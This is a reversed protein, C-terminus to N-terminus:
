LKLTEIITLFGKGNAILEDNQTYQLNSIDFHVWKSEKPVFEHLFMAANYSTSCKTSANKLDAVSSKIYTKNLYQPLSNIPEKLKQSINEIKNKLSKDQTFFVGYDDCAIHTSTFTTIDVILDPKYKNAYSLGDAVVLRGEADTNSIEVTKQSHSTVIDGPKLTEQSLINETLPLIAVISENTNEVMYKFIHGAYCAGTKDMKMYHLHNTYGSKISVGGSDFTIGKGVICKTPKNDRLRELVVFYPPNYNGNGIAYLLGLGEKKIEKSNLVKVKVDKNKKFVTQFYKAIYQPTAINSPKNILEITEMCENVQKIYDQIQSDNSHIFLKKEPNKINLVKYDFAVQMLNNLVNASISICPEITKQLYSMYDNKLTKKDFIFTDKSCNSKNRIM